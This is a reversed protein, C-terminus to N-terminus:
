EKLRLKSITISDYASTIWAGEPTKTKVRTGQAVVTETQVLFGERVAFYSVTRGRALTKGTSVEPNMEFETVLRACKWRHVKFWGDIRTKFHAASGAKEGVQIPLLVLFFTQAQEQVEPGKGLIEALTGDTRMTCNYVMPKRARVIEKPLPKGDVISELPEIRIVARANGDRQAAFEFLGRNRDRTKMVKREEGTVNVTVQSRTQTFVYAYRKGTSFDWLLSDSLELPDIAAFKENDIEGEPISIEGMPPFDPEPAQVTPPGPGAGNAAPDNTSPPEKECGAGLLLILLGPVVAVPRPRNEKAPRM